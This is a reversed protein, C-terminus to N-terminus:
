KLLEKNNAIRLHNFSDISVHEGMADLRRLEEMFFKICYKVNGEPMNIYKSIKRVVKDLSPM